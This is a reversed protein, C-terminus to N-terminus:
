VGKPVPVIGLLCEIIVFSVQLNKLLKQGFGLNVEAFDIFFCDGIVLCVEGGSISFRCDQRLLPLLLENGARDVAHEGSKAGEQFVENLYIIGTGHGQGADM